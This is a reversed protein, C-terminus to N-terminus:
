RSKNVMDRVHSSGLLVAIFDAGQFRYMVLEDSLPLSFAAQALMPALITKSIGFPVSQPRLPPNGKKLCIWASKLQPKRDM